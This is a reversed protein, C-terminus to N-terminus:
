SKTLDIGHKAAEALIRRRERQRAEEKAAALKSELEVIDQFSMQKLDSMRM